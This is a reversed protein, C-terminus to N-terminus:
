AVGLATFIVHFVWGALAIGGLFAACVIGDEIGWVIYRRIKAKTAPNGFVKPIKVRRKAVIVPFGLAYPDEMAQEHLTWPSCALLPAVDACTLIESPKAALEELTM